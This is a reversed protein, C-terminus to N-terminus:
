GHRSQKKRHKATFAEREAREAARLARMYIRSQCKQSCFRKRTVRVFAKGCEPAPCIDLAGRGGYHARPDRPVPICGAAAGDIIASAFEVIRRARARDADHATHETSHKVM